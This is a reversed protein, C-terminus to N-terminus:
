TVSRLRPTTALVLEASWSGGGEAVSASEAGSVIQRRAPVEGVPLGAASGQVGGEELRDVVFYSWVLRESVSWAVLETVWNALLEDTTDGPAVVPRSYTARVNSLDFSLDFAAFGANEFLEMATAGYVRIRLEATVSDLRQYRVDPVSCV